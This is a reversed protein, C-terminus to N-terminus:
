DLTHMIMDEAVYKVSCRSVQDDEYINWIASQWNDSEDVASITFTVVEGPAGELKQCFYVVTLHGPIPKIKLSVWSLLM